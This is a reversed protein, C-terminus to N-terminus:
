AATRQEFFDSVWVNIIIDIDSAFEKENKVSERVFQIFEKMILDKRSEMRAISLKDGKVNDFELDLMQRATSGEEAFANILTTKLAEDCTFLLAVKKTMPYNQM